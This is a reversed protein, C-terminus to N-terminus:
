PELRFSLKDIKGTFTFPVDYRYEIMAVGTRTDAGIDFTEDEPFTVPASHEVAKKDVEKGDVILVGTGGKGMATVLLILGATTMRLLGRQLDLNKLADFYKRM